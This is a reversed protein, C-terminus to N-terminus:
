KDKRLRFAEAFERVGPGPKSHILQTVAVLHHAYTEALDEVTQALEPSAPKTEPPSRASPPSADARAWPLITRPSAAM